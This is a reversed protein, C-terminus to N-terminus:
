GSGGALLFGSLLLVPVFPCGRGAAGALVEVDVVECWLKGMWGGVRM